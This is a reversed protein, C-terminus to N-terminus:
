RVEGTEQHRAIIWADHAEAHEILAETWDRVVRAWEERAASLNRAAALGTSPANLRARGHMDSARGFAAHADNM